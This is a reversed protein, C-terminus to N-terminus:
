KERKTCKYSLLMEKDSASVRYSDRCKSIGKNIAFKNLKHTQLFAYTRDRHKIFCDALLWAIIMNVYYQTENQFRNMCAFIRDLYEETDLYGFMLRFGSRKVFEKDSHTLSEALEFYKVREEKKIKFSMLDCSAWNDIRKVYPIFYRKMTDFNKIESIISGNISTNEYTEWLNLSLFEEFNGKLIEKIVSKVVPTKIFLVPLQTNILKSAWEIKSKDTSGLSKLYKTFAEGDALTWHEKVLEM